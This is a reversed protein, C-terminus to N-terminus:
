AVQRARGWPSIIALALMAVFFASSFVVYLHMPQWGADVLAGAAIPSLIAGFRGIGIAWGMGTTRVGAPYLPPTLAYFGAMAGNVVGGLLVGTILAFTLHSTTLAFLLMLASAALLAACSLRRVDVLRATFAFLVTGLIGGLSLMVGSTVGQQATLGSATLLRPTWGFVFYYGAMMFFFAIWVCLTYRALAAEFLRRMTVSATPGDAAATAPLASLLARNMRSMLVNLRLLADAPRRTILFDVSEPLGRYVFPLMTLSAVAGFLFASRWGYHAILVAAVAGGATAGLPYGATYLCSATNRWRDSSYEAVLVTASALIGGIGIGTMVRLVGLVRFGGAFGSLLMGLSVIWLSALIITRRGLRDALPAVFLAGAAMGVLGASLLLGLERGSLKWESSVGSAAFSMVLVDFGDLMNLGVCVALAAFQFAGIPSSRILDRIDAGAPHHAGLSPTGNV